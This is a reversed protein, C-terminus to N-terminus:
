RLMKPQFSTWFSKTSAMIENKEGKDSILRTLEVSPHDTELQKEIKAFPPQSPAAQELM